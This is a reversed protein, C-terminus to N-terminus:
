RGVLIRMGQLASALGDRDLKQHADLLRCMVESASEQWAANDNVPRASWFIKAHMLAEAVDKDEGDRRGCEVRVKRGRSGCKGCAISAEAYGPIWSQGVDRVPQKTWCEVANGECFPCPPLVIRDVSPDTGSKSESESM